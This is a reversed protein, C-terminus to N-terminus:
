CKYYRRLLSSFKIGVLYFGLQLLVFRARM